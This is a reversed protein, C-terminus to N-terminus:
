FFREGHGLDIGPGGHGGGLGRNGKATCGGGHDDVLLGAAVSM